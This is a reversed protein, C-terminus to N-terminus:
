TPVPLNIWDPGELHAHIKTFNHGGLFIEASARAKVTSFVREHVLLIGGLGPCLLLAVVSLLFIPLLQQLAFWTLLKWIESSQPFLWKGKHAGWLAYWPYGCLHELLAAFWKENSFYMQLFNMLYILTEHHTQYFWGRSRARWANSWLGKSWLNM